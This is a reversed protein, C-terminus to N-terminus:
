EKFIAGTSASTVQRAYRYLYGKKVKFDPQKWEKLRNKIDEDSLRVNLSRKPIDIDIIEGEHIIGIVGGEQAEPSVHGIAAGRTGGSFRGDTILAVDKDLGAGALAATPSLMERMGPGGKPGEYRVVIVDGKVIKGNMIAAMADEESDFIRAPGSHKLMSPDVASKKVVAGDPALNGFLIALGGDPSYPSEIPHIINEDLSHASGIIEKLTKGTVTKQTLDLLDKKVLEGMVATIGGARYLDEMHAPGAPSIKCLNPTKASIDNFMKLELKIGAEHAIAPLHLVTNTSSGLAMEMHMANEFARPTAIDRPKINNTVLHMIKKGAEKALRIREAYVAPITGNGPLALGLAECLCNMSNATYMGSCSGVGPCANNELQNLEEETIKETKRAGVGEFVTILDVTKDGAKGALMPGGSLILSPINLRLMAMLMGPIIKDCNGIMVMGDFPYATGMIEISDAIIERSILSYKMGQHGMAIGDCVGITSFEMPTGGAMAIGMKVAAAVEHLHKHGPIVENASNAIGIIPRSLEEDTYGMAKCLSRHPARELGNKMLDSRM